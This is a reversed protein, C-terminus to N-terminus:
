PKVLSAKAPYVYKEGAQTLFKHATSQIDDRLRYREKNDTSDYFRKQVAKVRDAGNDLIKYKRKLDAYSKYGYEVARAERKARDDDIRASNYDRTVKDLTEALSTSLSTYASVHTTVRRLPSKSSMSKEGTLPQAVWDILNTVYDASPGGLQTSAYQLKAPSIGLMKGGAKFLPSTSFRTQDEPRVASNGKTLYDPAIAGGSFRERNAKLDGYLAIINPLGEPLMADRMSSLTSDLAHPDNMQLKRLGHEILTGFVWGWEHPKPIRLFEGSKMEQPLPIARAGPISDLKVHWYNDREWKSLAWYDKDDKHMYYLLGTAVALPAGRMMVRKPDRVTEHTAKAMGNVAARFFSIMSTAEATLRGKMAFDTIDRSQFAAYSDIDETSWDPHKKKATERVREFVSIRTTMESADRSRRIGDIVAKEAASLKGGSHSLDAVTKRVKARDLAGTGSLAGGAQVWQDRSAGVGVAKAAGKATDWIPVFGGESTMHASLADRILNSYLVFGPDATVGARLANAPMNAMRLVLNRARDTMGALSDYLVKDGIQYFEPKGERMVFVVRDAKMGGTLMQQGEWYKLDFMEPPLQDVVDVLNNFGETQRMENGARETAIRLEHLVNHFKMPAPIKEALWAYQKSGQLMDVLSLTADNQAAKQVSNYARRVATELWSEFPAHSEGKYAPNPMNQNAMKRNASSPANDRAEGIGSEVVRKNPVYVREPDMRQAFAEPTLFEREVLSLEKWWDQLADFAKRFKPSDFAQITEAIQKVTFQGTPRDNQAYWEMQRARAYMEFDQHYESKDGSMKLIKELGPANETGDTLLKHSIEASGRSLRMKIYPNQSPRTEEYRKGTVREVIGRVPYFDDVADAKGKEIPSFVASKKSEVSKAVEGAYDTNARFADPGSQTALQVYMDRAQEFAPLTKNTTLSTEFEELFAPAERRVTAPNTIYQRIFEALGEQTKRAASQTMDWSSRPGLDGPDGFRALEAAFKPDSSWKFKDDLGHGIEHAAVAVDYINRARSIGKGEKYFGGIRKGVRGLKGKRHRQDVADVLTKVIDRESVPKSGPVRVPEPAGTAQQPMVSGATGKPTRNEGGGFLDGQAEGFLGGEVAQQGEKGKITSDSFANQTANYPKTFKTQSDDVPISTQPETPTTAPQTTLVNLEQNIESIRKEAATSGFKKKSRSIQKILRAKETELADVQAAEDPSLERQKVRAQEIADLDSRLKAVFGAAKETKPKVLTPKAPKEAVGGGNGGGGAQRAGQGAVGQDVGGRVENAGPVADRIAQQVRGFLEARVNAKNEGGAIRKAADNLAEAVPGTHMSLKDYIEGDQAARTAKVRNGEVNLVNGGEAVIKARAEDSIPKYANKETKFQEKVWNSLQAKEVALNQRIEEEGFLNVQKATVDPATLVFRALEAVEGDTMRQGTEGKARLLDYLGQQAAHDPVANAITVARSLPLRQQVVDNFLNDNLKSIAMGDSAVKGKLSVGQALLDKPTANNERFVKAADIATGRGEAINTMAGISRATAADPADIFKVLVGEANTRQALELRHHGNVVYVLGDAPDRWVLLVGGKNPDYEQLAKLEQTVGEANTDGKYQLRVPDAAIKKPDLLDYGQAQMPARSVEPATPASEPAPSEVPAAKRAPPTVPEGPAAPAAKVPQSAVPETPMPSPASIRVYGGKKGRIAVSGDGAIVVREPAAGIDALRSQVEPHIANIEEQTFGSTRLIAQTRHPKRPAPVEGQGRQETALQTQAVEQARGQVEGGPVVERSKANDQLQNILVERSKLLEPTAYGDAELKNIVEVQATAGEPTLREGRTGRIANEVAVAASTPKTRAIVKAAQEVKGAAVMNKVSGRLKGVGHAVMFTDMVMWPTEALARKIQAPDRTAIANYADTYKQTFGGLLEPIQTKGTDPDPMAGAALQAGFVGLGAQQAGPILMSGVNIVNEAFKNSPDLAEGTKPDVDYMPNNPLILDGYPIDHIMQAGGRGVGQALENGIRSAGQVLGYLDRSINLGSGSVDLPQEVYPTQPIENGAARGIKTGPAERTVKLPKEFTADLRETNAPIVLSPASKQPKPVVAKVAADFNRSSDNIATKANKVGQNRLEGTWGVPAMPSEAAKKAPKKGNAWNSLEDFAGM